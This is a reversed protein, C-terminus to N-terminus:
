RLQDESRMQLMVVDCSASVQNHKKNSAESHQRSLALKSVNRLASKWSICVLITLEFGPVIDSRTERCGIVGGTYYKATSGLDIGSVKAATDM